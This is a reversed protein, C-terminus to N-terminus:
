TLEIQMLNITVFLLLQICLKKRSQLMITHNKTVSKTSCTKKSLAYTTKSAAFFRSSSNWHILSTLSFYNLALGHSFIISWWAEPAAASKFLIMTFSPRPSTNRRTSYRHTNRRIKLTTRATLNTRRFRDVM